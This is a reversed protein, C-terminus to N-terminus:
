GLKDGQRSPALDPEGTVRMIRERCYQRAAEINQHPGSHFPALIDVQLRAPRPLLRQDPLMRRTGRIAVPLLPLERRFAVAFAGRHFRRIGAEARFTGEPFFALSGGSDATQMISRMDAAGQSKDQREVFHADVRRLLFHVLPVRTMERKIVFRFRVPLAATLLIGDLYSAHNAVAVAPGDPLHELGNVAPFSGTLRFVLRAANRAAHRRRESGPRVSVLVVAALACCLFVTLFWLGYLTDTLARM